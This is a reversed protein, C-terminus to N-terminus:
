DSQGRARKAPREDERDGPAGESPSRTRKRATEPKGKGKGATENRKSTTEEEECVREKENSSSSATMLVACIEEERTPQNHEMSGRWSASPDEVPLCGTSRREPEGMMPPLTSPGGEHSGFPGILSGEPQEEWDRDEDLAFLDDDLDVLVPSPYGTFESLSNNYIPSSPHELGDGPTEVHPTTAAPALHPSHRVKRRRSPPQLMQPLPLQSRAGSASRIHQGRPRSGARPLEFPSQTQDPVALWQSPDAVRSPKVLAATSPSLARAVRPSRSRSWRHRSASWARYDLHPPVRPPGAVFQVVPLLAPHANHSQGHMAGDSPANHCPLMGIGGTVTLIPRTDALYQSLNEPMDGEGQQSSLMTIDRDSVIACTADTQDLIYDLITDVMDGQEPPRPVVEIQSEFSADKSVAGGDDVSEMYDSGNPTSSRSSHEEETAARLVKPVFFPRHKVKYYHLFVCQDSKSPETGEEQMNKPGRRHEWSMSIEHTASVSFSAQGAPGFDGGFAIEGDRARHTAAALAWEATKVWGCVFIIDQSKLDLRCINRAFQHWGAHNLLIYQTLDRGPHLAERHADNRLVLVAGQEDSFKFRIHALPGFSGTGPEVSADASVVTVSKSCIPGAQLAHPRHHRLIDPLGLPEHGDPVGYREHLPHDAPLTANFLRYFGGDLMYGVDGILVEGSQTPEPEWLPHGHGRKFLLKTYVEWAAGM